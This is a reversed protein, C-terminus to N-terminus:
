PPAAPPGGPAPLPWRRSRGRGRGAPPAASGAASPPAGGRRRTGARAPRGRGRDGRAAAECGRRLGPHLDGGLPDAGDVGLGQPRLARQHDVPHVGLPPDAPVVGQRPGDLQRPLQRAREQHDLGDAAVLGPRRIAVVGEHQGAHGLVPAAQRAPRDAVVRQHPPPRALHLAKKPVEPPQRRRHDGVVDGTLRRPGDLGQPALEVDPQLRDVGGRDEREPEGPPLEEGSVQETALQLAV